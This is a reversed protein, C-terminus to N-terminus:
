IEDVSYVFDLDIKDYSFLEEDKFFRAIEIDSSVQSDSAHVVNCQGSLSYDGRITGAEAEYGKTVGVLNRVVTIANVGEIVLLVSPASQMFRKLHPFFPKDKLHFYHEGILDDNLHMMKLGVLKLGKREFRHLIEGVLGRNLSDPKFIVLTREM